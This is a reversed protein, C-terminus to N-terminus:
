GAVKPHRHTVTNPRKVPCKRVVKLKTKTRVVTRTVTTTKGPVTVTPGTVTVAPLTVTTTLGTVTVAPTTVTTTPGPVTVTTTPGPVTVTVTKAPETTARTASTCGEGVDGGNKNQDGDHVMFQLKYTHGTVLGLSGTDWVVAATYSERDLGTPWTGFAGLDGENKAPDSAGSPKYTGYVAHPSFGHTFESGVQGSAQWDGAAPTSATGGATVDTVYLIPQLPRGAADSTNAGFNPTTNNLGKSTSLDAGAGGLTLAHEDSYYAVVQDGILAAGTAPSFGRLVESESFTTAGRPFASSSLVPYGCTDVTTDTAKVAQITSSASKGTAMAAVTGLSVLVLCGFIVAMKRLSQM